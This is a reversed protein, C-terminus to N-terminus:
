WGNRAKEALADGQIRWIERGMEVLTEGFEELVEEPGVSSRRAEEFEEDTGFTAAQWVKMWRKVAELAQAHLVQIDSAVMYFSSRTTHANSPKFVKLTSFKAFTRLLQVTNWHEVKHLLVIMTGGNKLHELGLALQVMILRSTERRERYAARPHNRLVQGDCLALNFCRKGETLQRPIFGSPETHDPPIKLCGMDEALLNVDLFRVEVAEHYPLLVSHGGKDPPLTFALARSGPNARLATELFAGPAMCFDVISTPIEDTDDRLINFGGTAENLEEGNRIMMRFFKEQSAADANDARQRRRIFVEDVDPDNWGERRAADLAQFEPVRERLYAKIIATANPKPPSDATYKDHTTSEDHSTYGYPIPDAM